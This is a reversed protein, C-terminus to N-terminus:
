RANQERILNNILEFEEDCLLSKLYSDYEGTRVNFRLPTGEVCFWIIGGNDLIFDLALMGKIIMRPRDDLM